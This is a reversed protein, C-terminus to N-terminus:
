IRPSPKTLTLTPNLAGDVHGLGKTYRRKLGSTTLIVSFFNSRKISLRGSICNTLDWKTKQMCISFIRASFKPNTFLKNYKQWQFSQM